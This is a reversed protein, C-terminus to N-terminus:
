SSGMIVLGQEMRQELYLTLLGTEKKGRFYSGHYDSSRGHIGFGNVSTAYVGDAGTSSSRIGFSNESMARVGINDISWGYVGSSNPSYGLVGYGGNFDTRGYVGIKGSGHVGRSYFGTNDTNEGRIATGEVEGSIAEIKQAYATPIM